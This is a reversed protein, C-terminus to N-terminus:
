ARAGDLEARLRALETYTAADMWGPREPILHERNWVHTDPSERRKHSGRRRQGGKGHRSRSV